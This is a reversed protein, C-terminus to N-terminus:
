EMHFRLYELVSNYGIWSCGKELEHYYCAEYIKKKMGCSVAVRGNLDWVSYKLLLFPSVMAVAIRKIQKILNQLGM